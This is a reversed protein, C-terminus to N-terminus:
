RTHRISTNPTYVPDSWSTTANMKPTTAFSPDAQPRRIVRKDQPLLAHELSSYAGYTGVRSPADLSERTMHIGVDISTACERTQDEIQNLAEEWESSTLPPSSVRRNHEQNERSQFNVFKTKDDLTMMQRAPAHISASLHKDVAKRWEKRKCSAMVERQEPTMIKRKAQRKPTNSPTPFIPVHTLSAKSTAVPSLIPRQIPVPLPELPAHVSASLLRIQQKAVRLDCVTAEDLDPNPHRATGMSMDLDTKGLKWERTSPTREPALSNVEWKSERDLELDPNPSCANTPPRRLSEKAEIIPCDNVVSQLLMSPAHGFSEYFTHSETDRVIDETMPHSSKSEEAMGTVTGLISTLATDAVSSPTTDAHQQLPLDDDNGLSLIPTTRTVEIGNAMNACKQESMALDHTPSPLLAGSSTLLVQHMSDAAYLKEDNAVAVVIPVRDPATPAPSSAASAAIEQSLSENVLENACESINITAPCGTSFAMQAPEVDGYPPTHSTVCTMDEMQTVSFEVVDQGMLEDSSVLDPISSHEHTLALSILLSAPTSMMSPRKSEGKDGEHNREQTSSVLQEAEPCTFHVCTNNQTELAQDFSDPEPVPSHEHHHRNENQDATYRGSLLVNTKNPCTAQVMIKTALDKPRVFTDTAENVVNAEMSSKTEMITLVPDQSFTESWLLHTQKLTGLTTLRNTALSDITIDAPLVESRPAGSIDIEVAAICPPQDETSSNFDQQEVDSSPHHNIAADEVARAEHQSKSGITPPTLDFDAYSHPTAVDGAKEGTVLAMVVTPAMLCSDIHDSYQVENKLPYTVPLKYSETASPSPITVLTTTDIEARGNQSRKIQTDNTADDPPSVVILPIPPCSSRQHQTRAWPQM